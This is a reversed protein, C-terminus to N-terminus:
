LESAGKKCRLLLSIIRVANVKLAPNDAFNYESVWFYKINWRTCDEVLGDDYLSMGTYVGGGWGGGGYHVEIRYCHLIFLTIGRFIPIM